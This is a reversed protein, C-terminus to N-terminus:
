PLAIGLQQLTGLGALKGQELVAIRDASKLAWADSQTTVISLCKRERHLGMIADCVLQHQGPDLGVTPNDYFVVSPGLAKCRAIQTRKRLGPSLEVPRKQAYPVLGFQNLVTEVAQEIGSENMSGQYRLPLAINEYVDLNNILGGAEFVFAAHLVATEIAERMPIDPGGDGLLTVSGQTPAILGALIKLLLTKGCGNPGMIVFFESQRLALSVDSLVVQGGMGWGLRDAMLFPKEM